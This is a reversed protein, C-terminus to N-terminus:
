YFKVRRWTYINAIDSLTYQDKLVEDSHYVDVQM